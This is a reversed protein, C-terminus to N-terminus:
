KLSVTFFPFYGLRSNVLFEHNNISMRKLQEVDKFYDEELEKLQKYSM